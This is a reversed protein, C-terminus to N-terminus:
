ANSQKNSRQKFKYTDLELEFSNQSVAPMDGEFVIDCGHMRRFALPEVTTSGASIWFSSASSAEAAVSAPIRDTLSSPVM